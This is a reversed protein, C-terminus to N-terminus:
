LKMRKFVPEPILRILWMIMSWISLVYVTNKKKRIGNYVRKAVQDPDATILSPLNLGETMQTRVFGPKVTLVHVKSHFLRNRLGSLYETLGAKASGYLYNSMRGRDGAVSSIGVIVGTRRKEFDNAVINLISVVGVFNTILIKNAEDWDTKALEHNGLYGFAVVVIDPKASLKEYFPQHQAMQFTDFHAIEVPVKHRIIIDSRLPELANLDRGALILSCGRSAYKGAIATAIDSTAGLILVTTM